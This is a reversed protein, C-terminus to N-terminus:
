QKYKQFEMLLMTIDDFQPAEGVFADVDEKLGHLTGVIDMDRHTNFYDRLREEGYMGGDTCTAETVGDTYLFLRDGPLMRIEHQTYKTQEMGALVLAPRCRLYEFDGDAHRWLPPNHGANVYTMRGDNLDLIGLWATVFLDADNGECLLNNVKEFVEAPELNLQVHNKLLVKAIVMFLAAPVGKGSVDAVVMAFRNDGLMYYDYFDGGVEKAPTMAAYVDFEDHDPFAPFICPLMHAQIDSALTLEANIREKERTVTQLNEIYDELDGIMSIYSRALEGVETTDKAYRGCTDLMEQRRDQTDHQEYYSNSVRALEEVPRAIKKETYSMFGLSLAFYVNLVLTEFLFMQGLLSVNSGNQNLKNTLYVIGAVVFCLGIGTIITNLIMRENMSFRLVREKSDNQLNVLYRQLLNGIILLPTGFLLGSDFSNILLYLNEMSFFGTVNYVHNLLGTLLVILLADVVLVLCFKLIKAVRDLCFLSNYDEEPNLRRWMYYPIMAYIIQGAFSFLIYSVEYGSVADCILSGVACGFAAPWGFIMGLVPTLATSPRMDTLQAAAVWLKFPATLIIFLIVNLAFLSVAEKKKTMKMKMGFRTM